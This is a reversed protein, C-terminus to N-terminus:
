RRNYRLVRIHGISNGNIDQIPMRLASREEIKDALQRLIRAVEYSADPNFADNDLNMIIEFQRM